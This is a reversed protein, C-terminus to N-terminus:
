TGANDGDGVIEYDADIEREKDLRKQRDLEARFDDSANKLLLEFKGHVESAKRPVYPGMAEAEVKHSKLLEDNLRRIEAEVLVRRTKTGSFKGGVTEVEEVELWKEGDERLSHLKALQELLEERQLAGDELVERRKFQRLVEVKSALAPIVKGEEHMKDIVTRIRGPALGYKEGLTAVAAEKDESELWHQYILSDRMRRRRKKLAWTRYPEDKPLHKEDVRVTRLAKEAESPVVVVGM